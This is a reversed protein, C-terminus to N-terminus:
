GESSRLCALCGGVGPGKCPSNKPRASEVGMALVGVGKSKQEFTVKGSLAAELVPSLCSSGALVGSPAAPSTPSLYSPLQGPLRTISPDSPATRLQGVPPPGCPLSSLLQPGGAPDLLLSTM